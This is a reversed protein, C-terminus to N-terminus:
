CFAGGGDIVVFFVPDIFTVFQTLFYNVLSVRSGGVM